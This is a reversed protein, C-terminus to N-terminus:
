RAERWLWLIDRGFSWLLALAAAPVAVAMMAGTDVPLQLAILTGIQAVCVAKRAFSDPLPQNLWPLVQRAAGFLYYPLGLLVVTWGAAGNVAASVALLLAFGADVEVDFWAGFESSLGQRRALWGDLGDFGLALVALAFGAWSPGAGSLLAIFLVGIIVLRGHTAINCLGLRSYPYDVTMRSAVWLTAGGYTTVAILYSLPEAHGPGVLLAGILCMAVAGIMATVIYAAIPPFIPATRATARM